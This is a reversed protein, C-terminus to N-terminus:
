DEYDPAKKYEIVEECMAIWLLEKQIEALCDETHSRLNIFSLEESNLFKHIKYSTKTITALDRKCHNIYSQSHEIETRLEQVSLLSLRCLNSETIQLSESLYCKLNEIINKYNM